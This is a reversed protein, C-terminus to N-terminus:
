VTSAVSAQLKSAFRVLLFMLLWSQPNINKPSNGIGPKAASSNLSINM